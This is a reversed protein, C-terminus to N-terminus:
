TVCYAVCYVCFCLPNIYPYKTMQIINYENISMQPNLQGNSVNIKAAEGCYWQLSGSSVESDILYNM